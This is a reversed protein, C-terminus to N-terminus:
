NTKKLHIHDRHWEFGLYNKGPVEPLFITAVCLDQRVMRSNHINTKYLKYKIKPHLRHSQRQWFSCQLHSVVALRDISIHILVEPKCTQLSQEPNAAAYHAMLDIHIGEFASKDKTAGNIGMNLDVQTWAFLLISVIIVIVSNQITINLSPSRYLICREQFIFNWNPATCNDFYSHFFHLFATFVQFYLLYKCICSM